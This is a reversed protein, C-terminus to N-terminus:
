VKKKNLDYVEIVCKNGGFLLYQDNWLCASLDDIGICIKNLLESSHFDWIRINGLTNTCILRIKGKSKYIFINFCCVIGMGIGDSDEYKKYEENQEFDFSKCFGINGTIIYNKSLEDDYFIDISCVAKCVGSSKNIISIFKGNLDYVHIGSSKLWRLHFDSTIIYINDKNNLFCASYLHASQFINIFNYLCELTNANWLKINM